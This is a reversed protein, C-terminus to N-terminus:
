LRLFYIVSKINKKKTSHHSLKISIISLLVLPIYKFWCLFLVSLAGVGCSFGFFSCSSFCLLFVKLRIITLSHQWSIGEKDLLYWQTPAEKWLLWGDLCETLVRLGDSLMFPIGRLRIAWSIYTALKKLAWKCFKWKRRISGVYEVWVQSCSCLCERM